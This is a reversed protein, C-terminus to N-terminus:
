NSCADGVGNADSDIQDPNFTVPCNDPTMPPHLVWRRPTTSEGHDDRGWCWLVDSDHFACTHYGGASVWLWGESPVEEPPILQGHTDGGWCMLQGAGYLGCSHFRGASVSWWSRPEEGELLEPPSLSLAGWCRLDGTTTVGCSHGHAASV